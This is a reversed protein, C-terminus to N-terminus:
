FTRFFGLSAYAVVSSYDGTIEGSNGYALLRGKLKKEKAFAMLAEIGAYGCISIDYYRRVDSFGEIDLSLIRDIAMKDLKRAVSSPVYHSFDSSAIIGIDWEESMKALLMGAEKTIEPNDLALTIPVIKFDEFFYQLFPLIVEISHEELHALEDKEAYSFANVFEDVFDEAVKIKGLPTEWYGSPYVSFFAGLGTHNPSLIVYIEKEELSSISVSAYKGSYIYGAHPSIVGLAGSEDSKPFSDLLTMLEERDSPYFSGAFVAKRYM